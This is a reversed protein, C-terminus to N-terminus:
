KARILFAEYPRTPDFLELGSDKNLGWVKFTKIIEEYNVSIAIRYLRTRASTSGAFFIYYGPHKETFKIIISAVTAIIKNRDGNNSTALDDINGDETPNGFVLHYVREDAHQFQVV